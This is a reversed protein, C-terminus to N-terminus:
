ELEDTMEETALTLIGTPLRGRLVNVLGVRLLLRHRSQLSGYLCVDDNRAIYIISKSETFKGWEVGLAREIVTSQCVLCGMVM